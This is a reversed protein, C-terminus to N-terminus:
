LEGRHAVKIWDDVLKIEPRLYVSDPTDFVYFTAVKDGVKCIAKRETM